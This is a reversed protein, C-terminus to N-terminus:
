LQRSYCQTKISFKVRWYTCLWIIKKIQSSVLTKRIIRISINTFRCSIKELINQGPFRIRNFMYSLATTTKFRWIRWMRLIKNTTRNTEEITKYIATRKKEKCNAATANLRSQYNPYYLM